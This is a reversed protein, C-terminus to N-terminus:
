KGEGPKEEAAKRIVFKTPVPTAVARQLAVIRDEIALADRRLSDYRPNATMTQEMGRRAAVLEDRMDTFVKLVHAQADWPGGPQWPDATASAINVGRALDAAKWKGLPRGGASIEYQGEPLNKVTLLFRNLESGIPIFAQQLVWLPHLNLPLGEDNRIFTVGSESREVQTVKCGEATGVTGSGADITAASVDASADLGKLIAFAMALQGLDNLHIGDSVHLPKEGERGQKGANFALARRQIERMTRQVDIAGAGKSKALALGEDCMKQLFNNESKEPAEATVAASCIFVRVHHKACRDILEGMADLYERKHADDAKTGWGIDNIGYAVTLVTAGQAFVDADLRALSGKMTEGGKGANIFRIKRAPFRLLTYDEIIKGYQRAATISDGLFVVTDGDRLAFDACAFSPLLVAFLLLVSFPKM